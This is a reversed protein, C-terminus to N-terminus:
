DPLPYSWYYYFCLVDNPSFSLLLKVYSLFGSWSELTPDYHAGMLPSFAAHTKWCTSNRRSPLPQGRGPWPSGAKSITSVRRRRRKQCYHGQPGGEAHGLYSSNRRLCRPVRILTHAQVREVVVSLPLCNRQCLVSSNRFEQESLGAETLHEDCPESNQDNDSNTTSSPSDSESDGESLLPDSCVYSMSGKLEVQGVIQDRVDEEEETMQILSALLMSPGLLHTDINRLKSAKKRRVAFRPNAGPTTTSSRRRANGTKTSRGSAAHPVSQLSQLSQLQASSRRRQALTASAFGASSRRRARSAPVAISPRRSRCPESGEGGPRAFVAEKRKFHRRFFVDM